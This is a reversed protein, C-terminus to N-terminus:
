FLDFQLIVFIKDHAIVPVVALVAPVRTHSRYFPFIDNATRNKTQVREVIDAYNLFLCRLDSM